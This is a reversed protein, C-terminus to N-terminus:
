PTCGPTCGMAPIQSYLDCDPPCEMCASIVTAGTTYSITCLKPEKEGPEPTPKEFLCINPVPRPDGDFIWRCSNGIMYVEDETYTDVYDFDGPVLPEQSAWTWWLISVVGDPVLKRKFAFDITAPDDPSIRAWALDPDDGLGQDFLRTEYGDGPNGEEALYPTEGGVDDNTDEWVEVGMVNWEGQEFRSPDTVIVLLDGDGGIHFDLEVAYSGNLVTTTGESSYTMLDAFIWTDNKGMQFRVIDLHPYYMNKEENVPREIFNVQWQDCGGGINPQDATKTYRGTDCDYAWYVLKPEPPMLSHTINAYPDETPSPEPTDESLLQPPATTNTPLPPPAVSQQSPLTCAALVAALVVMVMVLLCSKKM